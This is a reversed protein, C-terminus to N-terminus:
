LVNVHPPTAGSAPNDGEGRKKKKIPLLFLYKERGKAHRSFYCFQVLHGCLEHDGAAGVGVAPKRVEEDSVERPCYARM